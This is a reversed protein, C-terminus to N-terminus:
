FKKQGGEKKTPISSCKGGGGVGWEPSMLM